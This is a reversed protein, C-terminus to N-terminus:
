FRVCCLLTLLPTCANLMAAIARLAEACAANDAVAAVLLPAVDSDGQWQFTAFVCCPLTLGDYDM